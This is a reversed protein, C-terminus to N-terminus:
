LEIRKLLVLASVQETARHGLAWSRHHFTQDILEEDFIFDDITLVLRVILSRVFDLTLQTRGVLM